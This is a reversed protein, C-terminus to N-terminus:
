LKVIQRDTLVAEVGNITVTDGVKARARDVLAYGINKGITFSHTFKTVRGVVQGDIMVTAGHPGGYILADNDDVIFGLLQRKPGEAKVKELAAKGIFDKSWDIRGELGVEFPNTGWLDTMLIFGREAALTYVMVDIETIKVAGFAKGHEVLKAEVVGAKEAAVYIEYGLREGTYGSRAVKVPVDDIKNDRITFFKQDDVKEALFSNVLDKSKPGQVSYMRWNPTINEYEVKSAGKHADLWNILQRIYFTSIWYKNEEMRFVIVDDIIIGDENLMMTYKAGGPKVGAISSAFIKDLFATADEGTVELLRHTFSYWGVANRVAKHQDRVSADHSLLKKSREQKEDFTYGPKQRRYGYLGREIVFRAIDDAFATEDLRVVWEASVLTKVMGNFYAAYAPTFEPHQGYMELMSKSCEIVTREPSFETFKWPLSRAQFIMSIYGGMVRGDDVSEPVGLWERAAKRTNWEGFQLKGATDFVTDIIHQAKPMDEEKVLVRLAVVAQSSMFMPWMACDKYMEGATWTAGSPSAYIGTTLWEVETRKPAGTKRMGSNPPGWQEWEYGDANPHPGYKRQTEIVVHCYPDGCGRRESDYNNIPVGALGRCFYQGGGISVDCAEPGVIDFDCRHIEKEVRDNTCYWIYGSMLMMEDGKDCYNATRYIGDTLFPPIEFRERFMELIGMDENTWMEALSKGWESSMVTVRKEYDPEIIKLANIWGVAFLAAHRILFEYTEKFSKIRDWPTIMGRFLRLGSDDDIQGVDSINPPVLKEVETAM